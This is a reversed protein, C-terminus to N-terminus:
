HKFAAEIQLQKKKPRLGAVKDWLNKASGFFAKGELIRRIFVINSVKNKHV